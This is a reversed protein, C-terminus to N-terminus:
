RMSKWRRIRARLVAREMCCGEWDALDQWSATPRGEGHTVELRAALARLEAEISALRRSLWFERAAHWARVFPPARRASGGYGPRCFPLRGAQWSRRAEHGAPRNSHTTMPQPDALAVLAHQSGRM